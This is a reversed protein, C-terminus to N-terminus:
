GNEYGSIAMKYGRKVLVPSVIDFDREIIRDRSLERELIKKSIFDIPYYIGNIYQLQITNNLVENIVCEVISNLKSESIM